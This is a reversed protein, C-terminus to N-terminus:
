KLPASPNNLFDIMEPWFQEAALANAQESGGRADGVVVAAIPFDPPSGATTHGAAPYYLNTYPTRDASRRLEQMIQTASPASPWVLDQGGDSLLVPIRIDAVPILAGTTLPKGHFTWAASLPPGGFDGTVLYSPSNAVIADILHPEYSAILLVAEAGASYGILVIPRGRAVPQARLWDVAALGGARWRAVAFRARTLVQGNGGIHFM